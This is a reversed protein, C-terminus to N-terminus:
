KTGNKVEDLKYKCKENHYRGINAPNSIMDCYKCKIKAFMGTGNKRNVEAAIKGGMSQIKPDYFGKKNEKMTKKMRDQVEKSWCGTKNLKNSIVANAQAKKRTEPDFIGTKNKKNTLHSKEQSKKALKENFIMGTKNLRHNVANLKGTNSALNPYLIFTKKFTDRALNPYLEHLKKGGREGRVKLREISKDYSCKDVKYGLRKQYEREIEGAEKDTKNDLVELVILDELKYKGNYLAVRAELDKTCGIKVGKIEYIYYKIQTLEL